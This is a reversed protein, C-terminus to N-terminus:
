KPQLIRFDIYAAPEVTYGARNIQKRRMTRGDPLMGREATGMAYILRAKLERRQKKTEGEADGLSEYEDALAAVDSGLDICRGTDPEIMALIDATSPHLFDPLPPDRREVRQMFDHEADVLRDIVGQNRHITFIRFDDDGILAALEATDHEACAMQQQVQLYYGQPIDETGSDGFKGAAYASVKKVEVPGFESVFDLSALMWPAAENVMIKTPKALERGTAETYAEAILREWRLGWGRRDWKAEGDDPILGLKDLYVELATRFVAHEQSLGLVAGAESAGVGRRRATLWEPTGIIPSPALTTTM